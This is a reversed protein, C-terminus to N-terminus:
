AADAEVTVIDEMRVPLNTVVSAIFEGSPLSKGNRVRSLTSSDVGIQQAFAGWPQGARLRELTEMNIVLRPKAM